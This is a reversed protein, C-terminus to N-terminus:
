LAGLTHELRQALYGLWGIPWKLRSREVVFRFRWLFSRGHFFCAAVERRPARDGVFFCLPPPTQLDTEVGLRDSSTAKVGDLSM